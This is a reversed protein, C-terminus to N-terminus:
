LGCMFFSVNKLCNLDPLKRRMLTSVADMILDNLWGGEAITQKERTSLELNPIWECDSSKKVVLEEEALGSIKGVAM